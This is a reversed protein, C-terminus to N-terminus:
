KYLPTRKESANGGVQGKNLPEVTCSKTNRVKRKMEQEVQSLKDQLAKNESLLTELQHSTENKSVVETELNQLTYNHIWHPTPLHYINHTLPELM